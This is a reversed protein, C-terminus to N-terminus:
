RAPRRAKFPYGSANGLHGIETELEHIEKWKHYVKLAHYELLKAAIKGYLEHLEAARLRGGQMWSLANAAVNVEAKRAQVYLLHGYLVGLLFTFAKADTDLGKAEALLPKLSEQTAEYVANEKPLVNVREDSLYDLFLFLHRVWGNLTLPLWKGAQHQKPAEQFCQYLVGGNEQDLLMSWYAQATQDIEHWLPGSDIRRGGHFVCEALQYLLDRRRPSQNESKVRQGGPRRLLEDALRLNLDISRRVGPRLDRPYFM